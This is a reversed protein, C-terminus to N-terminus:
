GKNYDAFIINKVISKYPYNADELKQKGHPKGDSKGAGGTDKGALKPAPPEYGVNGIYSQLTSSITIGGLICMIPALVLM